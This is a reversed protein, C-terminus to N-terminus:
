RSERKRSLMQEVRPISELLSLIIVRDGAKIFDYGGPILVSDERMICLVLVGKPFDLDKLPTGVLGSDPGVLAELAEAGDKIAVTSLVGGKRVHKFISNVASLRPSVIHELGIARVLPMYEIKNLRTIAMAAGLKKALLSALINSEENGTMTVVVDMDGVNEEQLVEQDTGDGHLVVTRSLENALVACRAADKDLLKVQISKKELGRALRLGINGGGIILVRSKKGPRNGLFSFVAQLQSNECVFYVLDGERIEDSGAPVIVADDRVIAAVIMPTDAVKRRLDFLRIGVLPNGETIWTGALKIRGGALDSIDVAGPARLMHEVSKVVETEPNIIIGIGIGQALQQGYAIYEDNRIRALKTLGPALMNAFTCAMLNIEDSDTVALLVDAKSIGAEGLILPSCGSGELVQVDMHDLIRQLVAPNRDIVVVDKNESALRKAIHFGVEGAGVIIAKM